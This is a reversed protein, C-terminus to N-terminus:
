TGKEDVSVESWCASGRCPLAPECRLGDCEILWIGDITPGLDGTCFGLHLRHRKQLRCLDVCLKPLRGIGGSHQLGQFTRLNSRRLLVHMVEDSPAKMLSVNNQVRGRASVCRWLCVATLALARKRLLITPMAQSIRFHM